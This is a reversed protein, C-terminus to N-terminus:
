VSRLKRMQEMTEMIDNNNEENIGNEGQNIKITEDVPQEVVPESPIPANPSPVSQNQELKSTLEKIKPILAKLMESRLIRNTMTKCETLMEQMKDLSPIFDVIVTIRYYNNPRLILGPRSGLTGSAARQNQIQPVQQRPNSKVVIVKESNTPLPLICSSNKPIFLRDSQSRQSADKKETKDTKDTKESEPSEIEQLHYVENYGLNVIARFIYESSSPQIETKDTRGYGGVHIKCNVSNGFKCTQQLHTTLIAVPNPIGAQLYRMLINTDIPLQGISMKIPYNHPMDAEYLFTKTETTSGELLFRLEPYIIDVIKQDIPFTRQEIGGMQKVQKVIQTGMEVKIHKRTKNIIPIKELDLLNLIDVSVRLHLGLHKPAQTDFVPYKITPGDPRGSPHLGHEEPVPIVPGVPGVPGCPIDPGVPDVPCCPNVPGVPGVPGCPSDPPVPDEPDVPGVPGVPGCPGVPGPVPSVPGVPNVPGVPGIPGVPGVPFVPGEPGVPGCPGTPGPTPSVPGVPGVPGCPGVPGPVPSVPGVPGVPGVPSVPGAPGVPFVPAAPGAPETPGVPGTPGVPPVPLM